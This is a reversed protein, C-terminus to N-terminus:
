RNDGRGKIKNRKQRDKLKRLNLKGISNLDICLLRAIQSVYWLVDGVEDIIGVSDFKGDRIFKKVKNAVEGAEGALGLTCYYLGKNGKPFIATETAKKQYKNLEM